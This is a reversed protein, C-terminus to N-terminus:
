FRCYVDFTNPLSSGKVEQERQEKGGGQSLTSFFKKIFTQARKYEYKHCPINLLLFSFM